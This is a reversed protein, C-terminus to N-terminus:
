RATITTQEIDSNNARDPDPARSNVRATNTITGARGPRVAIVVTASQGNSLSGLSCTVTANTEVCTGNTSSASLFRVDAPLTDILTVDTAVAPGNNSVVVTYTLDAGRRLPDASDSKTVMLDAAPRHDHVYIDECCTDDLAFFAESQFAVVQGDASMAPFLSALEFGAETGDTAVSARETTHTTRDHVFVDSDENTDGPVLNVFDSDFAVFRGDDSIDPRGTQFGGTGEEGTSSVSVRETTGLLRDRVFIDLENNTDGPVLNSFQAMFAVFRGDASIAPFFAGDRGGTGQEEESNVSIRETTGALRDRVFVDHCEIPFGSDMCVNTDGPVLNSAGSSFAVFRGDFSFAAGGSAGNGLEEASSVSVIEITGTLRDHVFVDSQGNTDGPVLEDSTSLFAVFRGDGSIAPLFGGAFTERGEATVSIRETTGTQRDHVFVDETNNTDRNVLNPATSAFAVFRGDGSMAPRGFNVDLTGGSDAVKERGHSDVSVRETLGTLRDHVFVDDTDNTDGPVLNAALSWFAVFRGDASIAPDVSFNDGQGGTSSVSVREAIGPQHALVVLGVLGAIVLALVASRTIRGVTLNTVANNM